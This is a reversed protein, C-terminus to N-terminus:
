PSRSARRRLALLGTAALILGGTAALAAFVLTSRGGPVLAAVGSAATPTPPATPHYRLLPTPGSNDSVTLFDAGDPSYAISEGQTEDPLPTIRPTGTTIAKVVDGDPVDWEYAATYTRLAVRHRDPSTAAGTVVTSGIAALADFLSPAPSPRAPRFEGVKALPVGTATRPQLPETPTYLSAVGSLEKTVIVPVGDSGFLLAEADHPGDPYTLRHIVPDGDPPVLWLAITARRTQATVNDGIDAVWLRGQPDLAVDEPDRAPTPYGQTRTVACSRDLYVIRVTDTDFQSDIVSVYGDSTAVLGSLEIARPDDVTCVVEGAAPTPTAAPAPAPPSLPAVLLPLFAAAFRMPV